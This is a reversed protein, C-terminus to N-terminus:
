EKEGPSAYFFGEKSPENDQIAKLVLFTINDNKMQIYEEDSHPIM